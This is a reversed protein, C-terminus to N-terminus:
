FYFIYVLSRKEEESHHSVIFLFALSFDEQCHSSERPSILLPPNEFMYSIDQDFESSLNFPSGLRLYRACEPNEITIEPRMQIWLFAGIFVVAGLSCVKFSKSQIQRMHQIKILMRSFAMGLRFLM